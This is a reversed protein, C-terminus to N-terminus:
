GPRFSLGTRALGASFKAMYDIFITPGPHFIMFRMRIVGTYLLLFAGVDM